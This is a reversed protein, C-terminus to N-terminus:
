DSVLTPTFSSPCSFLDNYISQESKSFTKKTSKSTVHEKLKCELLHAGTCVSLFAHSTELLYAGISKCIHAFVRQHVGERVLAYIKAQARLIFVVGLNM